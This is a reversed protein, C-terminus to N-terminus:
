SLHLKPHSMSLIPGRQSLRDLTKNAVVSFVLTHLGLLTRAKTPWKFFPPTAGTMPMAVIEFAYIGAALAPVQVWNARSNGRTMSTLVGWMGSYAVRMMIGSATAKEGQVGFLKSALRRPDYVILGPALTQEVVDALWLAVGGLSGALLGLEIKRATSKKM